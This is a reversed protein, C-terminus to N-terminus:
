ETKLTVVPDLRAARRSPLWAAALAAAAVAAAAAALLLPNLPSVQYLQSRMALALGAALPTGIAIGVFILTGGQRIFLRQVQSRRAGLAVRIGIERRRRSISYAATAFVGVMSLLIAIAAFSALLLMAFREKATYLRVRHDLSVLEPSPVEPELEQVLTRLTPSLETLDSSGRLVLDLDPVPHQSWPRYIHPEPPQRLNSHRIDQIVGVITAWSEEGEAGTAAIRRGIAGQGPWGRRALTENVIAVSPSGTRDEDSFYRGEVVPSRLTQFYDGLVVHFHATPLDSPDDSITNGGSDTKYFSTWSNGDLPSDQSAGFSLVESIDGLRGRLRDYFSSMAVASDYREQPLWIRATFVNGADFGRDVSILQHFSAAALAAGAVLVVALALQAATLIKLLRTGSSNAVRTGSRLVDISNGRVSVLSGIGSITLGALLALGLTFLLSSWGLAVTQAFPTETPYRALLAGSIWELLPLALVAGILTLLTGEVCESLLLRRRAAGLAARVAAEQRRADGRAVALGAVNVCAVVFVFAVAAWIMMLAPRLSGFQQEHLGVVRVGFATAEPHEVAIIGALSALRRQADNPFLGPRLRAVVNLFFRDRDLSEESSPNVPVWASVFDQDIGRPFSPKSPMIGIVTFAVQDVHVVKGVVAEEGFLKLRLSRSLLIQRGPDSENASPPLLSGEEPTLRLLPLLNSTVRALEIREAPFNGSLVAPQVAYAAMGDFADSRQQWDLYTPLSITLQNSWAPMVQWLQVLRDSEAFPLPRLLISDVLSFVAANAGLAVAITLIGALTSAPTKFLRRWALKLDRLWTM